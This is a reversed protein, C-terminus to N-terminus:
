AINQNKSMQNFALMNNLEIIDKVSFNNLLRQILKDNSINKNQLAKQMKEANIDEGYSKTIKNQYLLQRLTEIDAKNESPSIEHENFRNIEVENYPMIGKSTIKNLPINRKQIEYEEAPTLKQAIGHRGPRAGMFHGLEHTIRGVDAAKELHMKNKSPISENRFQNYLIEINQLSKLAQQQRSKADGFKQARKAYTPSLIYEMQNKIVDKAISEQKKAISKEENKIKQGESIYETKSNTYKPKQNILEKPNYYPVPSVVIDKDAIPKPKQKYASITTDKGNPM